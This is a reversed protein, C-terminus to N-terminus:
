QTPEGTGLSSAVRRSWGALRRCSGVGLDRGTAERYTRCDFGTARPGGWLCAERCRESDRNIVGCLSSVRHVAVVTFSMSFDQTSNVYTAAPATITLASDLALFPQTPRGSVAEVTYADNRFSVAMAPFTLGSVFSSLAAPRSPWLRDLLASMSLPAATAAYFSLNRSSTQGSSSGGSGSGSTSADLTLNVAVPVDVLTGNLSGSMSTSIPMFVVSQLQLIRAVTINGSVQLLRLARVCRAAM